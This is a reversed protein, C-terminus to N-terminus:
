RPVSISPVPSGKILVTSIIVGVKIIGEPTFLSVATAGVIVPLRVREKASPVCLVIMDPVSDVLEADDVVSVSCPTVADLWTVNEGVFEAAAM